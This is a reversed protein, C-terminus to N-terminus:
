STTFVTCNISKDCFDGDAAGEDSLLDRPIKVGCVWIFKKLSGLVVSFRLAEFRLGAAFEIMAGSKLNSDIPMPPRSASNLVMKRLANADRIKGGPSTSFSPM